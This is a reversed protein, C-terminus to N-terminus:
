AYLGLDKLALDRGKLYLKCFVFFVGLFRFLIYYLISYFLILLISYTLLVYDSVLCLCSLLSDSCYDLSSYVSYSFM